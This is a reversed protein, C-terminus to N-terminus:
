SLGRGDTELKAFVLIFLEVFINRWINKYKWTIITFVRLSIGLDLTTWYKEWRVTVCINKTKLQLVHPLPATKTWFHESFTNTRFTKLKNLWSLKLKPQYTQVWLEHDARRNLAQDTPTLPQLLHNSSIKISCGKLCM